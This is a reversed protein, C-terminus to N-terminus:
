LLMLSIFAFSNWIIHLLISPVLSKTLRYLLVFIMGMLTASWPFGVHLLGFVLSSVVLGLWFHHRHELFRHVIGRYLIEEKVPTIIALSGYVLLMQLWQSEDTQLLQDLGLDTPQESGDDWQLLQMFVNQIVFFLLAGGAILGYTRLRLLVSFDFAKWIFQRVSRFSVMLIFFVAGDLILLNYAPLQSLLDTDYFLEFFVALFTLATGLAINLAIFLAIFLLFTSWKM